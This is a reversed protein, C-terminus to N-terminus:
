WIRSECKRLCFFGCSDILGCSSHVYIFDFMCLLFMYIITFLKFFSENVLIESAKQTSDGDVRVMISDASYFQHALEPQQKLIQYYRTVFYSGVQIYMYYVFGNFHM